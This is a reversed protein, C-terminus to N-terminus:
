KRGLAFMFINKMHIAGDPQRYPAIARRLAERTEDDGALSRARMAPGASMLGRLAQEEDSYHFAVDVERVGLPQLGAEHLLNQLAETNSLAFPGPAGPPPPPLLTGLAKIHSAAECREPPGWVAMVLQGGKKLVRRAERIAEIPSAAYQFSNCGVTADFTEDEFPLEEMEGSVFTAAGVRWKAREIFIESADIGTVNLGRQSALESFVGTGCGVDLLAGGPPLAVADLIPPYMASSQGEQITAWDDVGPGWLKAQLAASGM